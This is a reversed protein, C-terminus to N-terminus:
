RANRLAVHAQLANPPLYDWYRITGHHVNSPGVACGGTQSHWLIEALFMLVAVGGLCEM